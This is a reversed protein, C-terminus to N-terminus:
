KANYKEYNLLFYNSFNSASHYSFSNCAIMNKVNRQIKSVKIQGSILNMYIEKTAQFIEDESNDVLVLGLSQIEQRYYLRRYPMSFYDKLPIMEGNKSYKKFISLDHELFGLSADAYYMNAYLTPRGQFSSFYSLGSNTGIHFFCESLIFIDLEKTRFKSNSYNVFNNKFYEELYKVYQSNNDGVLVVKLGTDVLFKIASFYTEINSNRSSEYKENNFYSSRVHLTVYKYPEIKLKDNIIKVYSLKEQLSFKILTKEKYKKNFDNFIKKADSTKNFSIDYEFFNEILFPFYTLPLCIIRLFFGSLFTVYSNYKDLLFDNALPYHKARFVIIKKTCINSLLKKRIHWDLFSAIGIQHLDVLFIRYGFLYILIAPIIYFPLFLFSLFHSLLKIIAKATLRLKFSFLDKRIYYYRSFKSTPYFPLLFNDLEQILM